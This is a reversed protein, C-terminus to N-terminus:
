QQNNLPMYLPFDRCIADSYEPFCVILATFFAKQLQLTTVREPISDEYIQSDGFVKLLSFCMGSAAMLRTKRELPAGILVRTQAEIFVITWIANIAVIMLCIMLAQLNSMGLTHNLEWILSGLVIVVFVLIPKWFYEYVLRVEHPGLARVTAASYYPASVFAVMAIFLINLHHALPLQTIAAVIDFVVILFVGVSVLNTAAAKQGYREHWKWNPQKPPLWNTFAKLINVLAENIEYVMWQKGTMAAALAYLLPAFVLDAKAIRALDASLNPFLNFNIKSKSIDTDLM